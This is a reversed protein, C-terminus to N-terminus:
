SPCCHGAPASGPASAATTVPSRVEDLRRAKVIEALVSLAIEPPTRAGIYLGVPTRVRALEAETPAVEALVAAGRRPSAVFGVCPV